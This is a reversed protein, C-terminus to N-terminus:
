ANMCYWIVSASCTWCYETATRGSKIALLKEDEFSKLSIPYLYDYNLAKLITYTAEDFCVVYLAFNRSVAKLSEYMVLGRNLYGSNFLTVYNYKEM